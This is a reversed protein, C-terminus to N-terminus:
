FDLKDARPVASDKAVFTARLNEACVNEPIAGLARRYTVTASWPMTFVGEDEVTFESAGEVRFPNQICILLLIGEIGSVADYVNWGCEPCCWAEQRWPEREILREMTNHPTRIFTPLSGDALADRMRREVRRGVVDYNHFSQQSEESTRAEEYREDGRADRHAVNGKRVRAAEWAYAEPDSSERTEYGRERAQESLRRMVFGHGIYWAIRPLQTAGYTVRTILRPLSRPEFVRDGASMPPPRNPRVNSRPVRAPHAPTDNAAEM